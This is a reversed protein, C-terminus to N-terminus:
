GVHVLKESKANISVVHLPTYTPSTLILMLELTQKLLVLVIRFLKLRLEVSQQSLHLVTSKLKLSLTAVARFNSPLAEMPSIVLYASM